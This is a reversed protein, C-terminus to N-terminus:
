PSGGMRNILEDRDWGHTVLFVADRELDIPDPLQEDAAKITEEPVGVTRLVHLFDNKPLKAPRSPPQPSEGTAVKRPGSIPMPM